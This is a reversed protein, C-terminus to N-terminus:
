NEIKKKKKLNSFKIDIEFEIPKLILRKTREFINYKKHDIRRIRLMKIKFILNSKKNEIKIDIKKHTYNVKIM